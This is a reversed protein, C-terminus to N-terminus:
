KISETIIKTKAPVHEFGYTNVLKYIVLTETESGEVEGCDIWEQMRKTVNDKAEILTKFFQEEGCDQPDHVVFKDVM